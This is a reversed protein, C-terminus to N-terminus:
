DQGEQQEQNEQPEQNKPVQKEEQPEGSEQEEQDEQIEYIAEDVEGIQEELAWDRKGRIVVLTRGKDAWDFLRKAYSPEVHICGHTAWDALEGREAM